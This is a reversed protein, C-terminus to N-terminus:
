QKNKNAKADYITPWNGNTSVEDLSGVMIEPGKIDETINETALEQDVLDKPQDKLVDEKKAKAQFVWAEYGNKEITKAELDFKKNDTFPIYMMEKYRTNNKFLSDKVPVFGLTDIIKGEKPMDIKYIPDYEMWSTDRQTTLTFQANEIFYVLSDFNKTYKGNVNRFAEESDRIDKLKAIVEAFRKEKVKKFELPGSISKYIQYGFFISLGWLVIQAVIKM